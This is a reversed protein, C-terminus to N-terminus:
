DKNEKTKLISGWVKKFRTDGGKQQVKKYELEKIIQIDQDIGATKFHLTFIYDCITSLFANTKEKLLNLNAWNDHHIYIHLRKNKSM